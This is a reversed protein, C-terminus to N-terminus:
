FHNKMIKIKNVKRIAMGRFTKQIKVVCELFYNIKNEWFLKNKRKKEFNENRVKKYKKQCSYQRWFKQVKFVFINFKFNRYNQLLQFPQHRYLYVSYTCIKWENERLINEDTVTVLICQCMEKMSISPTMNSNIINNNNRNSNNNHDHNNNNNSCNNENNTHFSFNNNRNYNNEFDNGEIGYRMRFEERKKNPRLADLVQRLGDVLLCYDNVFNLFSFKYHYKEKELISIELIKKSRLQQLLYHGEILNPKCSINPNLCLVHQLNSEMVIKSLNKM